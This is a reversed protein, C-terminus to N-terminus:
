FRFNAGFRFTRGVAGIQTYTPNYNTAAYNGANLPAKADTLNIVNAYFTFKDNVKVSGTLDVDIFRRVHCNFNPDSGQYTNGGNCDMTGFQDFGVAKYGSVYYTTATLSYPGYDVSNQWNGRWQPTGAGSSTVYPSQTGVFDTYPQDASPKFLYHLIYTAEARSTFRLDDRHLQVQASVDIGSTKLAAANAFPSNVFLARLPANPFAPDIVDPTVSYGAPMTGNGYFAALAQNSLPGGSIVDTKKINYYDATFSLWPTPQVVAGATFSQSLEPKINPNGVTNFGISYSQNYASGGTCNTGSATAGHQVQVSCPAKSSTFGIVSGSTEAFSPARFGKSFTGRLALQKFPMFKVGIKPSFRNYGEQYHDYRGSGDIELSTLIPANIEFYGSEVTRHGVASFQNLGLTTLNPNQNPDNQAEYRFSGGVGVQLPGGPLQVVEKTIVGQIM